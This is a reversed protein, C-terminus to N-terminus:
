CEINGLRSKSGDKRSNGRNGSGKGRDKQRGRNEMNLANGSTESTSKQRMEESLIVGVVDDFKLTNSGSVSNSIAMVLGNWREPLSCFILLARVEDDFDVKVSSLQNTVTNFENLHDAVSGGESMKMNFLRKMLFVKNSASPKEYLKALADMLGKTTKEKSINFAVSAALSLRITGLAKRDLIEWEEDKMAASKKAVGSLPLFIDNQYLYDEMQMKWLQYNQGNFKEVRFKGDKSM